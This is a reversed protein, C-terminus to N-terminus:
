INKNKNHEFVFYKQNQFKGLFSHLIQNNQITHNIDTKTLIMLSYRKM